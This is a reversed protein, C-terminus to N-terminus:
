IQLKLIIFSRLIIFVIIHRAYPCHESMLVGEIIYNFEIFISLNLKNKILSTSFEQWTM